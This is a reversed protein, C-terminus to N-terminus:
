RSRVTKLLYYATLLLFIQLGFLAVHRGEGARVDGFIPVV